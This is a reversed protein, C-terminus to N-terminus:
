VFPAQEVFAQLTEDGRHALEEGRFSILPAMYWRQIFSGTM